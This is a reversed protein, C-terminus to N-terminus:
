GKEKDNRFYLAEAVRAAGAGDVQQYNLRSMTKLADAQSLIDDLTRALHEPVMEHPELTFIQGSQALSQMVLRQNEAAVVALTPLGLCVREWLMVGGAGVSLDAQAMLEALNAPAHLVRVNTLDACQERLTAVHPNAMGAVVDVQLEPRKLIRIAEVVRGTNNVADVGGFCVLLRRVTGDRPKAKHHWSVFESRLLAYSPGMLMRCNLPVLNEYRTQADPTQELLLDCDHRRDALDDVVCLTTVAARMPKEWAADLAYHDVILVDVGGLKKLVALTQEADDAAPAELWHAHATGNGASVPDSVPPLAHLSHGHQRIVAFVNGALERSIFHIDAGRQHLVEALALCRMVHGTGIQSSADTRIAIKMLRNVYLEPRLLVCV